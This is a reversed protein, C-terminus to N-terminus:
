ILVACLVWCLELAPHRELLPVKLETGLVVFFFLVCSLCSVSRSTVEATVCCLWSQFGLKEQGYLLFSCAYTSPCPVSSARCSGLSNWWSSIRRDCDKCSLFLIQRQRAAASILTPRFLWFLTDKVKTGARGLSERSHALALSNLVEPRCAPMPVNWEHLGSRSLSSRMM